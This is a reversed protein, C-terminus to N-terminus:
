GFDGVKYVFFGLKLSLKVEFGGMEGICIILLELSGKFKLLEVRYYWM